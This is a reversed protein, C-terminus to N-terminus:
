SLATTVTKSPADKNSNHLLNREVRLSPVELEETIRTEFGSISRCHHVIDEAGIQNGLKGSWLSM